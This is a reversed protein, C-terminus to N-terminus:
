MFEGKEKRGGHGGMYREKTDKLNMAETAYWM